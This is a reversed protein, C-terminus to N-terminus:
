GPSLQSTTILTHLLQEWKDGYNRWGGLDRVRLLSAESMRQRLDPDDAMQQLRQTLAETDRPAVIFGERGDVFLDESGTATTAIVPCGCAMAQGQVLALGEEVSPLLIVHSRSMYQVLEAQPRAGLFDVNDTPLTHLIQTIESSSAGIVTLRKRPHKLAAFAQLLYPIGKRLSVGGVYLVQFSDAPPDAVKKFNELRVGYPVVHVKSAAIGYEAFSRAAVRSPVVIADSQEYIREERAMERAEQIRYEVGWRQHEEIMVREQYRRHTSGRDCIVIGGRSQVKKAAVLASGSLAILADCQPIRAALWRDFSVGNTYALASNLAPPCLGYKGLLIQATHVLPFTEVKERPIGERKLRRWPYTSYIRQLHGRRMMEHALEFHHFTGFTAQIIKM